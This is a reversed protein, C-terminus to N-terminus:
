SMPRVLLISLYTVQRSRKFVHSRAGKAFPKEKLQRPSKFALYSLEVKSSVPVQSRVNRVGVSIRPFGDDDLYCLAVGLKEISQM